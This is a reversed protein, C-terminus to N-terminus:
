ILKIERLLNVNKEDDCKLRKKLLVEVSFGNVAYIRHHACFFTNKQLIDFVAITM